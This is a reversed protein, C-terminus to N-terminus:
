PITLQVIKKGTEKNEVRIQFKVQIGDDDWCGKYPVINETFIDKLKLGDNISIDVKKAPDYNLVVRIFKEVDSKEVVLNKFSIRKLILNKITDKYENGTPRGWEQIVDSYTLIFALPYSKIAIDSFVSDPTKVFNHLSVALAADAAIRYAVKDDWNINLIALAGLTGHDHRELLQQHFWLRFKSEDSISDNQSKELYCSSIADISNHVNESLIFPTWDFTANFQCPLGLTKKPFESIWRKVHSVPYAVDHMISCIFWIKLLKDFENKKRFSFLQIEKDLLENIIFYGISFVFFMHLFHDRYNPINYLIVEEYKQFRSNVNFLEKPMKLSTGIDIFGQNILHAIEQNGRSNELSRTLNKIKALVKENTTTSNRESLQYNSIYNILDNGCLEKFSPTISVNKITIAASLAFIKLINREEQTFYHISKLFHIYLLGVVEGHFALPLCCITKVKKKKARQSGKIKSRNKEQNQVDEVVIFADGTKRWQEIATEGLGKGHLPDRWRPSFNGLHKEDDTAGASYIFTFPNGETKDDFLYINPISDKLIEHIGDGIQKAVEEWSCASIMKKEIEHLEHLLHARRSLFTIRLSKGFNDLIKEEKETLPSNVSNINMVGILERNPHIQPATGTTGSNQKPLTEIYIPVAVESKLTRLLKAYQLWKRDRPINRRPNGRGLQEAKHLFKIFDPDNQLDKVLRTEKERAVRGVVCDDFSRIAMATEKEWIGAIVGPVLRKGSYDMFRIRANEVNTIKKASEIIKKSVEHVSYKEAAANIEEMEINQIFDARDM